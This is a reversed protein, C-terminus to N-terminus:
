DSTPTRTLEDIHSAPLGHEKAAHIILELYETTPWVRESRCREPRVIYVWADIEAGGALAIRRLSGVYTHDHGEKAHIANLTREDVELVVGPLTAGEHAEINAAGAGRRRSPYNWVLRFGSLSATLVRLIGHEPHDNERLWRRLDQLHMNSGYAFVWHNAGTAAM